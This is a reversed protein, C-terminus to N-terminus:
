RIWQGSITATPASADSARRVRSTTGAVRTAAWRTRRKTSRGTMVRRYARRVSDTAPTPNSTTVSAALRAASGVPTVPTSRAAAVSSSTASGTSRDDGAVAEAPADVDVVAGHRGAM